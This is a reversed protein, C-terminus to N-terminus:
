MRVKITQDDVKIIYIGPQLIVTKNGDYIQRGTMDYVRVYKGNAYLKDGNIEIGMEDAPIINVGIHVNDKITKFNRWPETSKYADLSGEPVNLEVNDFCWDDFTPVINARTAAKYRLTQPEATANIATPPTASECVIKTLGTCGDFVASGFSEVTEPITVSNMGTQGAFAYDGIANVTYENGEEDTVKSDIVIDGEYAVNPNATVEVTGNEENPRYSIDDQVWRYYLRWFSKWPEAKRYVLAASKGAVIFFVNNICYDDFSGYVGAENDSMKVSPPTVADCYIMELTPIGYFAGEGISEITEPLMIIIIGTRQSFVWDGLAIVSYEKNTNEDIVTSRVTMTSAIEEASVATAVPTGDELEYVQYRIGDAVVFVPDPEKTSINKFNSWPSTMRYDELASASVVLKVNEFCHQDFSGYEGTADNGIVAVPPTSAESNIEELTSIGYFVGDGITEITAPLVVKVIGTRQSFLWNGLAIVTHEKGTNEDAVSALVYMVETIEEANVATAVPTGDTLESLQYRIGDAVVFVPEQSTGQIAEVNRFLNWPLKEKYSAIANEPVYLTGFVTWQEQFTAYPNDETDVTAPPTEAYCTLSMQTEESYYDATFACEGISKITEPLTISTIAYDQERFAGNGIATVKYESNDYNVMAPVVIEGQYMGNQSPIVTATNDPNLFYWLGNVEASITGVPLITRFEKWMNASKYVELSEAPVYLPVDYCIGYDISEVGTSTAPPILARCIISKLNINKYLAQIGLKNVTSPIDVSVIEFQSEFACDGIETVTYDTGDQRVNEPIVIDGSYYGEDRSGNPASVVKATKAALNLEYRIGHIVVAEASTTSGGQAWAGVVALLSIISFLVLKKM